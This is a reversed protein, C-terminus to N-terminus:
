SGGTPFIGSDSQALHLNESPAANPVGAAGHVGRASPNSIKDHSEPNLIQPRKLQGVNAPPNHRGRRRPRGFM